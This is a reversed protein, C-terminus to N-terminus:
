VALARAAAGMREVAATALFVELATAAFFVGGIGRALNAEAGAIAGAV